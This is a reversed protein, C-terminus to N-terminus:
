HLEKMRALVGAAEDGFQRDAMEYLMQEEKMNHQQMLILLTEAADLYEDDYRSEIAMAMQEFLRRMEEHESRMVATPGDQMGTTEEFEPFLVAEEMDFHAEMAKRFGDFEAQGAEWDGDSVAKEAAAFCDDCRKHEDTMYDKISGM